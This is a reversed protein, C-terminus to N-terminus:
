RARHLVRLLSKDKLNEVIWQTRGNIGDNQGYLVNPVDRYTRFCMVGDPNIYRMMNVMVFVRNDMDLSDFINSLHIFDYKKNLSHHLSMIDSWIFNFPTKINQRAQNFEAETIMYKTYTGYGHNFLLFGRMNNMYKTEKDPLVRLIKPMNKVRSVDVACWLDNLLKKYEEYDLLQLAATKIDMMCKANYSIDFADINKAGNLKTFIPHDGSAAVVLANETHEPMFHMAYRLDENTVTYAPSYTAFNNSDNAVSSLYKQAQEADPKM